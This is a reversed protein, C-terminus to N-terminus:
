WRGGLSLVLSSLQERRQVQSPDAPFDYREVDYRVGADLRGRRLRVGATTAIGFDPGPMGSVAVRPLLTLGVVGRVMDGLLELRAEGGTGFTTWRQRVPTLDYSRVTADAHLLLWPLVVVSARTGIEGVTRDDRAVADAALTGGLAHAELAVTRALLVSGTAGVVMGKSAAVGYGADVRHEMSGAQAEGALEWRRQAAAPSALLLTAASLLALAATRTARARVASM